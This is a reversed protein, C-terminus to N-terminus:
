WFLLHQLMRLGQEYYAQLESKNKNSINITQSVM